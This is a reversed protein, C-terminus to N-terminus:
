RKISVKGNWSGPSPFRLPMLAETACDLQSLVPPEKTAVGAGLPRGDPDLYLTVTLDGKGCQELLARAANEQSGLQKPDLTLAPRGRAPFGFEQRVEGVKGGVPAPWVANAFIRLICREVGRDGLTSKAPLVDLVRGDTGVHVVVSIDGELYSKQQGPRDICGSLSERMKKVTTAVAYEDMGGIDSETMPVAEPRRIRAGGDHMRSGPETADRSAGGCATLLLTLTVLAGLHSGRLAEHKAWSASRRLWDPRRSPREVSPM